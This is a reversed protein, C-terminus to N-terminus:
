LTQFSFRAQRILIRSPAFRHEASVSEEAALVEVSPCIANVIVAVVHDATDFTTPEQSRECAEVAAIARSSSNSTIATVEVELEEAM